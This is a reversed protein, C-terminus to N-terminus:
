PSQVRSAQATGQAVACLRGKGHHSAAFVECRAIARSQGAHAVVARAILEDGLAPRLYEISLGATVVNDGLLSGAAFTMANDAMYCIVGGHVFGGQHFLDRQIPIRLEAQGDGLHVLEARILVSFPQAALIRRGMELQDSM